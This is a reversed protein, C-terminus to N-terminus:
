EVVLVRASRSISWIQADQGTGFMYEGLAGANADNEIFIPLHFEERNEGTLLAVRSILAAGCLNERGKAGVQSFTYM